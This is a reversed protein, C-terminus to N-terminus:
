GPVKAEIGSISVIDSLEPFGSFTSEKELSPM